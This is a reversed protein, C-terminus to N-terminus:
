LQYISNARIYEHVEPDMIEATSDGRRLIDRIETSSVPLIPSEIFHVSDAYEDLMSPLSRRDGNAFRPAVAIEALSLLERWQKWRPIGELNDEGLILFFRAGPFEGALERLTLYTYSPECRDIEDRRVSVLCSIGTASVDGAIREAMIGAMEMRQEVSAGHSEKFPSQRAPIVLLGDLKLERVCALAIHRHGAHPPDFSGGFVGLRMFTDGTREDSAHPERPTSDTMRKRLTLAPIKM